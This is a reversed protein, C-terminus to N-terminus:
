LLQLKDTLDKLEYDWAPGIAAATLTPKGGFETLGADTILSTIFGQEKAKNYVELLEAESNVCVSIKSSMGGFIWHELSSGKKVDLILQYQVADETVRMKDIISKVAAHASHSTLKGTRVKEGKTNKLDKRIVLM